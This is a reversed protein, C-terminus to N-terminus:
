SRRSSATTMAVQQATELTPESRDRAAAPRSNTIRANSRGTTCSAGGIRRSASWTGGFRAAVLSYLAVVDAIAAARASINPLAARDGCRRGDARRVAPEHHHLWVRGKGAARHVAAGALPHGRGRGGAGRSLPGPEASRSRHRLGVATRDLAPRVLDRAEERALQWNRADFTPWAEAAFERNLGPAINRGILAAEIPITGTGCFPDALVRGPRWFSLQVMRRGADRAVASRGGAASLRAQAARRRDHRADADGCRRAPQDRDFLAARDGAFAGRPASGAITQRDGAERDAPLGAREFAAISALPRAGSVGRGAAGMAGLAARGHRRVARWFRDGSFSGM